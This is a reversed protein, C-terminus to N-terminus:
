LANNSNRLNDIENILRNVVTSWEIRERNKLAHMGLAEPIEPDDLWDSIATALANSDAAPVYKAFEMGAEPMSSVDTTIVAKGFDLSESVPLGWGEYSSPYITFLCNKYLSKLYEDVVNETLLHIRNKVPEDSLDLEHFFQEVNWGIKGVCVLDPVNQSGRKQILDQWTHLAVLHNKRVEITGVMLIYPRPWLEFDNAESSSQTSKDIYDFGGPLQTVCGPAERLHHAACYSSYDNRTSKSNTVVRDSVMSAGHLYRHFKPGVEDMFTPDLTPILDHLMTIVLLGNLRYRYVSAFYNDTIWVSELVFLVDQSQFDITPTNSLDSLIKDALENIDVNNASAKLLSILLTIDKLNPEVFDGTTYRYCVPIIRNRNNSNFEEIISLVVRQLGSVSSHVSLYQITQAVDIFVRSSVMVKNECMEETATLPDM